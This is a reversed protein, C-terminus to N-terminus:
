VGIWVWGLLCIAVNVGHFDAITTMMVVVIVYVCVCAYISNFFNFRKSSMKFRKCSRLINFLSVTLTFLIRGKLGRWWRRNRERRQWWKKKKRKEKEVVRTKLSAFPFYWFVYFGLNEQSLEHKLSVWSVSFLSQPPKLSVITQYWKYIRPFNFPRALTTRSFNSILEIQWIIYNTPM